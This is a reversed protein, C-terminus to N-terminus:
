RLQISIFIHGLIPYLGNNSKEIMLVAEIAQLM